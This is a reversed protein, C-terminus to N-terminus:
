LNIMMGNYNSTDIVKNTVNTYEKSNYTMICTNYDLEHWKIENSVKIPIYNKNDYKVACFSLQNTKNFDMVTSLQINYIYIRKHLYMDISICTSIHTNTYMYAYLYVHIYIPTHADM